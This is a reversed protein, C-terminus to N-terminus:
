HDPFSAIRHPGLWTGAETLGPLLSPLLYCFRCGPQHPPTGGETGQPGQAPRYIAIQPRPSLCTELM